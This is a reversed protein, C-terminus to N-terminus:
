QWCGSEMMALCVATQWRREQPKWKARFKRQAVRRASDKKQVAEMLSSAGFDPSSSGQRRKGRQPDGRGKQRLDQAPIWCLETRRADQYEAHLRKRLAPMSRRRRAPM